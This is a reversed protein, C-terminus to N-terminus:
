AFKHTQDSVSRISICGVIFSYVNKKLMRLVEMKFSTYKIVFSTEFSVLFILTLSVIYKSWLKIFNSVVFYLILFDGMLKYIKYCRDLANM